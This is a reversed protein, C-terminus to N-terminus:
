KEYGFLQFDREYLHYVKEKLEPTYYDEWNKGNRIGTINEQYLNSSPLSFGPPTM